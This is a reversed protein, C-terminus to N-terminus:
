VSPPITAATEDQVLAAIEADENTAELEELDFLTPMAIEEEAAKLYACSDVFYSPSLEIGYGKRKLKVALMPVTGLGAFPDLVLEGPQSLQAIVRYGLDFQLPCVHQEWGKAAQSSNLSLMRTIDTLVDPAWSQPQLLMFKV